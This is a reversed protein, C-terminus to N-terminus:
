RDPRSIKATAHPAMMKAIFRALEKRWSTSLTPMPAERREGAIQALGFGEGSLRGAVPAGVRAVLQRARRAAM